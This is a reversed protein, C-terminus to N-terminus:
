ESPFDIELIVYDGQFVEIKQGRPEFDLHKRGSIEPDRFMIHGYVGGHRMEVANIVGVEIGGVRLPYSGVPIDEIAVSFQVRLSNMEWEAEGEAEPLAGTNELSTKIQIYEDEDVCDILDGHMGNGMGNGPGHGSGPGMGCDFNHAEDGDQGDGYHGYGDEDFMDDFSSLILGEGDHIEILMGRPDFTMMIKGTEGPSSFGLEGEGGEVSFGGVDHIGLFLHYDGDPLGEVDIDFEMHGPFNEFRAHGSGTIGDRAPMLEVRQEGFMSDAHMDDAISGSCHTNMIELLRVIGFTGSGVDANDTEYTVVGSECSDFTISMTGIGHVSDNGEAAAQMFGVDNSEFLELEIRNEVLDGIGMFWASKRDAGYTYWYVVSKRSGDLQEVVQLALGQAEQDVQDWIGTFHRTVIIQDSFNGQGEEHALLQTACGILFVTMAIKAFLGTSKM